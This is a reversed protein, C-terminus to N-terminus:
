AGERTFAVVLVDRFATTGSIAPVVPSVSHMTRHDDGILLDMSHLLTRQWLVQGDADTITTEGGIVNRRCVMVTSIFDVGDRHLGEPTPHGAGSGDTTIRYPHLRINWRCAQGICQDCLKTLWDLLRSLVLHDVFGPELPDFKRAVNGNLSNIYQPQEYPAHPLQRREYGPRTEFEGYRRFRYTGGDGMYTDLTLHAWYAAFDAVQAPSLALLDTMTTGHLFVFRNREMQDTLRELKSGSHEVPEFINITM